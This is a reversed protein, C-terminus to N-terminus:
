EWRSNGEYRPKWTKLRYPPTEATMCFAKRVANYDESVHGNQQAVRTATLLRLVRRLLRCLPSSTNAGRTLLM